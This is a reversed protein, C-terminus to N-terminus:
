TPTTEFSEHLECLHNCAFFSVVQIDKLEKYPVYSSEDDQLFRSAKKKVELNRIGVWVIKAVAAAAPCGIKHLM